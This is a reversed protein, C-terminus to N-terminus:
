ENKLFKNIRRQLTILEVQINKESQMANGVGEDMMALAEEYKKFRNAAVAQKMVQDLLTVSIEDKFNDKSLLEYVRHSVTVKKLASVGLSYQFVENQIEEDYTMMKLFEWSLEKERTRKSIGMLLADLESINSGDPGAPMTVCDWEFNTYKEMCWPYSKYTKYESFSMPSFAVKGAEFDKSIVEYGDNLSKIAYVFNVANGVKNSSVYNSSGKSNFLLAGNSYAADHWTYNYVGFRDIIGDRDTDKTVRRCIDHFDAWNWDSLPYPIGSQELLTKNVCMLTPMCEFPLAYQKQEYEGFKLAGTYFDDKLFDRDYKMQYELNLLAGKSAFLNFDEPTLLFIDPESGTLFKGSLWESYDSKSIGSVYRVQVDPHTAEFKAIADELIQVSKDDPVGWNSGSFFGIRLISDENTHKVYLGLFIMLGIFVILNTVRKKM